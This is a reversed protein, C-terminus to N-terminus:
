RKRTAARRARWLAPTTGSWRRFARTMASADAYGLMEAIALVDKTSQELMQRAIEFRVEDVLQQFHTGHEELRRALTRSHMSFLAAVDDAQAHRTLLATRLVSRVQAPLDDGHEAELADIQQQLVERLKRDDTPLRHDLWNADFLLANQGADFSLPCRFFRRYPASDNPEVHAFRVETPAWRAGCLERLVNFGFALSADVIQDSAEGQREYLEVGLAASSGEMELTVVSGGARLHFHRVLGRLATGVDPSYKVLLGVLGLHYLRDRKGVLLGFHQCGTAAVCQKMLRGRAAFSILRDPDDFLDLDVRAAAFVEAPDARLSLLM